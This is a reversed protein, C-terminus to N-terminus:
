DHRDGVEVERKFSAIASNMAIRRLARRGGGRRRDAGASELWKAFAHRPILIGIGSACTRSRRGTSQPMSVAAASKTKASSAHAEDVTLTADKKDM